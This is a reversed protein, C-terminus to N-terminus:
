LFLTVIWGILLAAFPPAIVEMMAVNFSKKEEEKNKIPPVLRGVILAIGIAVPISLAPLGFTPVIFWAWLKTLVFGNLAASFAVIVFLFAIVALYGM